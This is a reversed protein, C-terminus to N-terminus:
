GVYSRSTGPSSPITKGPVALEGYLESTDLDQISSPQQDAEQQVLKQVATPLIINLSKLKEQRSKKKNIETSGKEM